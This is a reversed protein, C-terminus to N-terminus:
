CLIFYLFYQLHHIPYVEQVVKPYLFELLKIEHYWELLFQVKGLVKFTWYILQFFWLYRLWNLSLRLLSFQYSSMVQNVKKPVQFHFSVELIPFVQVEFMSFVRFNSSESRLCFWVICDNPLSQLVERWTAKQIAYVQTTGSLKLEFM